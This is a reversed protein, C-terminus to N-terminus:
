SGVFLNFYPLIPINYLGEGIISQLSESLQTSNTIKHYRPEYTTSSLFDFFDTSVQKTFMSNISGGDEM